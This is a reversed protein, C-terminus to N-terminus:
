GKATSVASPFSNQEGFYCELAAIKDGKFTFHEVNRFAKGNKTHCLYKVFAEDGSELVSELEFRDIFATQTDWCQSKFTSKSIHDDGAASSFTFDDAALLDVLGWDKKEWAAYWRRVMEDRRNTGSTGEVSPARAAGGCAVALSSAGAALLYRRSMSTRTMLQMRRIEAGYSVM